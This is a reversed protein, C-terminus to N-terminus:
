YIVPEDEVLKKNSAPHCRYFGCIVSNRLILVLITPCIYETLQVHAYNHIQPYVGVNIDTSAALILYTDVIRSYNGCVPFPPADDVFMCKNTPRDPRDVHALLCYNAFSRVEPTCFYLMMGYCHSVPAVAM